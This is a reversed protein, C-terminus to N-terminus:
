ANKVMGKIDARSYKAEPHSHKAHQVTLDVVEKENHSQVKFGCMPDCSIKKLQNKM